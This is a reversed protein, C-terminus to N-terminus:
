LYRLAPVMANVEEVSDEPKTTCDTNFSGFPKRLRNWM